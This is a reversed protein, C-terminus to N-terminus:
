FTLEYMYIHGDLSTAFLHNDGVVVHNITQTAGKITAIEEIHAFNFAVQNYNQAIIIQKTASDLAGKNDEVELRILHVGAELSITINGEDGIPIFNQHVSNAMNSGNGEQIASAQSASTQNTSPSGESGDKNISRYWTYAVINGDEDKSELASLVIDEGAKYVKDEVTIVAKPLQNVLSKSTNYEAKYKENLKVQEKHDINKNIQNSLQNDIGDCAIFLLVLGIISYKLRYKLM